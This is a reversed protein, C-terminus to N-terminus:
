PFYQRFFLHTALTWENVHPPINDNQWLDNWLDDYLDLTGQDYTAELKGGHGLYSAKLDKLGEPTIRGIEEFAQGVNGFTKELYEDMIREAQLRFEAMVALLDAVGEESKVKQLHEMFSIGAKLEYWLDSVRNFDSEGPRDIIFYEPDLSLRDGLYRELATGAKGYSGSRVVEQLGGITVPVTIGMSGGARFIM